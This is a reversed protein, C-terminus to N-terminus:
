LTLFEARAASDSKIVGRFARTVTECGTHRVGRSEVCMHRARVIIGAGKCPVANTFADIIQCTLREQVQLRRAFVEVLRNMKSLGVVRKDPIYGFTVTGFFPALHHECHSYFPINLEQIMEDSGEAGDEFQKLVAVPDLAYGSTWEKWAKTVRLPTELLGERTPDEGIYQLLRTVSDEISKAESEEWPFVLWEGLKYGSAGDATKYILAHFPTRPAIDRLRQATKGSDVLDDIIVDAATPDPEMVSARTMHRQVMFAAPVGGRPVGHIKIPFSPLVQSCAGEVLHAVRKAADDLETFTLIRKNM